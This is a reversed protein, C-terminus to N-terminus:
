LKGFTIRAVCESKGHINVVRAMYTSKDVDVPKIVTLIAEGTNSDFTTHYDENDTIIEENERCWIIEPIPIGRVVCRLEISKKAKVKRPKIPEIFTPAEGTEESDLDIKCRILFFILGVNIWQSYLESNFCSVIKYAYLFVMIFFRTLVILVGQLNHKYVFYAIYVIYLILTQFM